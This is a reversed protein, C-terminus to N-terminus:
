TLNTLFHPVHKSLAEEESNCCQTILALCGRRPVTLLLDEEPLQRPSEPLFGFTRVPSRQERPVGIPAPQALLGRELDETYNM